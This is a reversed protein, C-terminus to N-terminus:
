GRRVFGRTPRFGFSGPLLKTMGELAVTLNLGPFIMRCRTSFSERSNFSAESRLAAADVGGM